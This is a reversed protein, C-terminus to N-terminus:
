RSIKSKLQDVFILTYSLLRDVNEINIFLTVGKTLLNKNNFFKSMLQEYGVFLIIHNYLM